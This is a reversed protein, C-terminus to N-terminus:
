VFVVCVCLCKVCFIDISHVNASYIKNMIIIIVVKLFVLVAEIMAIVVM